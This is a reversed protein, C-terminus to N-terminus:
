SSSDLSSKFSVFEICRSEEFVSSSDIFNSTCSPSNLIGSLEVVVADGVLVPDELEGVSM